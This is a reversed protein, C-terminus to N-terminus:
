RKVKSEKEKTIGTSSSSTFYRYRKRKEVRKEDVEEKKERYTSVKQMNQVTCSGRQVIRRSKQVIEMGKQVIGDGETRVASDM